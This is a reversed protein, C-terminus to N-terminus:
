GMPAHRHLAGTQPRLRGAAPGLVHLASCDLHNRLLLIACARNMDNVSQWAYTSEFREIAVFHTAETAPMADAFPVAHSPIEVRACLRLPCGRPRLVRSAAVVTKSASRSV